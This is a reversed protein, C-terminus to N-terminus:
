RREPDPDFDSARLGADTQVLVERYLACHHFDEFCPGQAWVQDEAVMKRVPCADCYIMAVHRLHPCPTTTTM